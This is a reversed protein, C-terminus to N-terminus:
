LNRIIKEKESGCHDYVLLNWGQTTLNCRDPFAVKLEESVAPRSSGLVAAAFVSRFTM